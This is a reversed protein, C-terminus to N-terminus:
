FPFRRWAFKRFLWDAFRAGYLGWGYIVAAVYLTSIIVLTWYEVAGRGGSLIAGSLLSLSIFSKM